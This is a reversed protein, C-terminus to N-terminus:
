KKDKQSIYNFDYGLKVTKNIMDPNNVVAITLEVTDQASITAGGLVLSLLLVLLLVKRM